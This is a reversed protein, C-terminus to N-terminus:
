DSSTRTVLVPCHAHRVCQDSVSGLVLERLGGLGRAGVVLMRAERSARILSAAPGAHYARCTVEVEPHAAVQRQTDAVLAAHVAEALEDVSPAYGFTWGAPQPATVLSWARLVIVPARLDSALQLAVDLAGTAGPSGDHGVVISTPPAVEVSADVDDDTILPTQDM